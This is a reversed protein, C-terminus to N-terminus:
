ASLSYHVMISIMNHLLPTCVTYFISVCRKRLPLVWIFSYNYFLSNVKGGADGQFRSTLSLHLLFFFYILNVGCSQTCVYSATPLSSASGGLFFFILPINHHYKYATISFMDEWFLFSCVVWRYFHNVSQGGLFMRGKKQKVSNKKLSFYYEFDFLFIYICVLWFFHEFFPYPYSLFIYTCVDIIQTCTFCLIYKQKMKHHHSFFFILHWYTHANWVTFIVNFSPCSLLSPIAQTCTRISPLNQHPPYAFLCAWMFGDASSFIVSFSGVHIEGHTHEMIEPVACSLHTQKKQHFFIIGTEDDSNHKM